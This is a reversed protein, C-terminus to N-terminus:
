QLNTTNEFAITARQKASGEAKPITSYVLTSTQEEYEGLQHSKPPTLFLKSEIPRTELLFGELTPVAQCAELNPTTALRSSLNDTVAASRPM